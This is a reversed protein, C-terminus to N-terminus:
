FNNRLHQSQGFVVGSLTFADNQVTQQQLKLRFGVGFSDRGAWRGFSAMQVGPIRVRSNFAYFFRQCSTLSLVTMAARRMQGSHLMSFRSEMLITLRVSILLEPLYTMDNNLKPRSQKLVQIFIALISLLFDVEVEQSNKQREGSVNALADLVKLVVM